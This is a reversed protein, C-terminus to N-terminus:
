PSACCTCRRTATRYPRAPPRACPQVLRPREWFPQQRAAPPLMATRNRGYGPSDREDRGRGGVKDAAAMNPAGEVLARAVGEHGFLAALHTPTRGQENAARSLAEGHPTALLLRAVPANGSIAAM